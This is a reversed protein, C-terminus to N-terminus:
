KLFWYLIFTTKSNSLLNCNIMTESFTSKPIIDIAPNLTLTLTNLAVKLWMSLTTYFVVLFYFNWLIIVCYIILNIKCKFTSWVMERFNWIWLSSDSNTIKCNYFMGILTFYSLFFIIIEFSKDHSQVYYIVSNLISTM